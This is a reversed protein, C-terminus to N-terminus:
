RCGTWMLLMTEFTDDVKSASTGRAGAGRLLEADEEPIAWSHSEPRRRAAFIFMEENDMPPQFRTWANGIHTDHKGTKRKVRHLVPSFSFWLGFASWFPTEKSLSRIKYSIILLPSEEDFPLVLPSTLHLLTRLLPALLAPFYILDSCIIHTIRHGVRSSDSMPPRPQLDSAIAVADDRNGWGLPRVIVTSCDRLNNELLPCVEPLDTAYLLDRGPKLLAAVRSAVLGTGSGLEVVTLPESHPNSLTFPPPDFELLDDGSPYNLYALMAYSAEWVRGAIGYTGIAHKQAAAGFHPDLDDPSDVTKGTSPGIDLGAPFNPGACM